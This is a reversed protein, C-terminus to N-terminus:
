YLDESKSKINDLVTEVFHFDDVGAINELLEKQTNVFGEFDDIVEKVVDSIEDRINDPADVRDLMDDFLKEIKGRTM